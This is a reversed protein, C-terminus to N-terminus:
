YERGRILHPVIDEVLITEVFEHLYDTNRGCNITTTCILKGQIYIDVENVLKKGRIQITADPFLVRNLISNVYEQIEINSM